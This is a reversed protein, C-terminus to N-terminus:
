RAFTVIEKDPADDPVSRNVKYDLKKMMDTSISHLQVASDFGLEENTKDLTVWAYGIHKTKYICGNRYETIKFIQRLGQHKVIRRIASLISVSGSRM